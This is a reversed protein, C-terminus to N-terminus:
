YGELTKTYINWLGAANGHIRTIKWDSFNHATTVQLFCGIEPVFQQTAFTTFIPVNWPLKYLGKNTNEFLMPMSSNHQHARIVGRVKHSSGANYSRLMTETLNQGYSLGCGRRVNDWSLETNGKASFDNWMFGIEHPDIESKTIDKVYHTPIVNNLFLQAQSIHIHPKLNNFNKLRPLEIIREYNIQQPLAFLKHPHYGLEMGGHCCQVYNCTGATDYTGVFLVAPLTNYLQELAELIPEIEQPFKRTIEASFGNLMNVSLDEHNGRVFYVSSPNKLKLRLLTYIVEIGQKGRDSYDGLFLFYTQPQTIKFTDDIIGDSHLKELMRVFTKIDGHLDGWIYLTSAAPVLLKQTFPEFKKYNSVTQDVWLQKSDSSFQRMKQASYLQLADLVQQASCQAPTAQKPDLNKCQGVWQSLTTKQLSAFLKSHKPSPQAQLGFAISLSCLASLLLVDLRTKM